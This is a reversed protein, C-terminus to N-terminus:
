SYWCAKDTPLRGASAFGTRCMQDTLLIRTRWALGSMMNSVAGSLMGFSYADKQCLSLALLRTMIQQFNGPIAHGESAIAGLGHFSSEEALSRSSGTLIDYINLFQNDSQFDTRRDRSRSISAGSTSVAPAMKRATFSGGAVGVISHKSGAVEDAFLLHRGATEIAKTTDIKRMSWIRETGSAGIRLSLRGRDSQISLRTQCTGASRALFIKFMDGAVLGEPTRELGIINNRVGEFLDYGFAHLLGDLIAHDLLLNGLSMLDASANGTSAQKGQYACSQHHLHHGLATKRRKFSVMSTCYNALLKLQPKLERAKAPQSFASSLLALPLYAVGTFLGKGEVEINAFLCLLRAAPNGAKGHEVPEVDTAIGVELLRLGPAKM